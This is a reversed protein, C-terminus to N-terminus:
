EDRSEQVPASARYAEIASKAQTSYFPPIDEDGYWQLPASIARPDEFFAEDTDHSEIVARAKDSCFIRGSLPWMIQFDTGNAPLDAAVLDVRL